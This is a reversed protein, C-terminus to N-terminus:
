KQPSSDSELMSIYADRESQPLKNIKNLINALSMDREKKKRPEPAFFETEKVPNARVKNLIKRYVINDAAEEVVDKEHWGFRKFAALNSPCNKVLVHGYQTKCKFIRDETEPNSNSQQECEKKGSEKYESEEGASIIWYPKGDDSISEFKFPKGIRDAALKATILRPFNDIIIIEGKKMKSM